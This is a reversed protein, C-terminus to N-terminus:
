CTIGAVFIHVIQRLISVPETLCNREREQEQEYKRGVCIKVDVHFCNYVLGSPWHCGNSVGHKRKLNVWMVVVHYYAIKQSIM